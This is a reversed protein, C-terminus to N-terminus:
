NGPVGAGPPWYQLAAFLVGLAGIILGAIAIGIGASYLTGRRVSAETKAELAEFKADMAEFKADQAKFGADVKEILRDTMDDVRTNVGNIKTDALEGAHKFDSKKTLGEVVAKSHDVQAEAMCDSAGARTLRQIEQNTDFAVEAM